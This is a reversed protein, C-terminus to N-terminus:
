PRLPRECTWWMCVHDYISCCIFKVPSQAMFCLRRFNCFWCFWSISQSDHNQQTQKKAMIRIHLHSCTRTHRKMNLIHMCVNPSYRPVCVHVCLGTNRMISLVDTM